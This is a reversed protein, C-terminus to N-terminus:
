SSFTGLPSGVKWCSILRTNKWGANEEEHSSWIYFGNPTWPKCSPDECYSSVFDAGWNQNEAKKLIMTCNSSRGWNRKKGPETEAGKFCNYKCTLLVPNLLSCHKQTDTQTDTRPFCVTMQSDTAKQLVRLHKHHALPWLDFYACITSIKIATTKISSFHPLASLM